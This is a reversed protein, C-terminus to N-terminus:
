VYIIHEELLDKCFMAVDMAMFGDTKRLKPEIKGFQKNGYKDTMVCVNNTYWRMMASPGYIVKGQEFQQEIWPAIIATASAIKRILRVMGSPNDHSEVSIGRNEFALKFLTYRYLDMAIKQVQYEDILKMCYEVIADIPIVPEYTVEFDQFEDQGINAIPFKISEFFPSKACIWTHQRWVYEDQETKTLIGCSAFDRVDAYDIGIIGLQGRTDPFVRPKRESLEDHTTGEYSCRLINDWSTVTAEENRAPLNCRKTLFEPKKSAIKKAELLDQHIVDALIPMYEMSPNAKHLREMDDWEEPSDIKCLFPFWRLEDEGTKLIDSCTDLTDDLPGGRVHGNTTIIFTRPEAVKGRGSEFVNIDEYTEYAHYENFILLGPKKGDKTAPNSTNYRMFSGTEKNTILEKTWTFKGRFKQKNAELMDYAVNFTDHAQDEANAVIEVHYNRIGFVPTQMFNALPVILGDKGNGRGELIVFKSFLPRRVANEGIEYLFVFAYIYKQFPFLPYYNAECFRICKRYMEEDFVLDNRRLTPIVLNDRLEWREKNIWDRHEDMYAHYATVEPIEIM